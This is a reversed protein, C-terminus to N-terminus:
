LHANDVRHRQKRGHQAEKLQQKVLEQTKGAIGFLGLSGACPVPTAFPLPNKLIWCWQTMAWPNDAIRNRAFEHQQIKDDSHQWDWHVCDVVEVQGVIAGFPLSEVAPVQQGNPLTNDYQTQLTELWRQTKSAHILLPGRHLTHWSRNEVTKGAHLIAWAWPQAVSLVKM